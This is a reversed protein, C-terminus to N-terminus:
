GWRNDAFRAKGWGIEALWVFRLRLQGLGANVLLVNTRWAEPWAQVENLDINYAERQEPETRKVWVQQALRRLFGKQPSPRTKKRRPKIQLLLQVFNSKTSIFRVFSSESFYVDDLPLLQHRTDRLILDRRPQPWWHKLQLTWCSILHPYLTSYFIDKISAKWNSFQAYRRLLWLFFIFRLM